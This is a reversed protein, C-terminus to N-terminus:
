VSRTSSSFASSCPSSAEASATRPQDGAASGDSSIEYRGARADPPVTWLPQYVNSREGSPEHPASLPVPGALPRTEGAYRITALFDAHPSATSAAYVVAVRVEAGVNYSTLDTVARVEAPPRVPAARVVWLTALILCVVKPKLM